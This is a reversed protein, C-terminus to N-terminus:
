RSAFEKRLRRLDDLKEADLDSLRRERFANELRYYRLLTGVYQNAGALDPGSSLEFFCGLYWEAQPLRPHRTLVLIVELGELAPFLRGCQPLGTEFGLTAM